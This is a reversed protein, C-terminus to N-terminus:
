NAPSLSTRRQAKEEKEIRKRIREREDNEFKLQKRTEDAAKKKEAEIQENILVQQQIQQNMREKEVNRGTQYSIWAVAALIAIYIYM